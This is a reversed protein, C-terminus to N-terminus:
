LVKQETHLKEYGFWTISTAGRQPVLQNSDKEQEMNGRKTDHESEEMNTQTAKMLKGVLMRAKHFFAFRQGLSLVISSYLTHNAVCHFLRYINKRDDYRM